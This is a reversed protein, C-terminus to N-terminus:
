FDWDDSVAVDIAWFFSSFCQGAWIPFDSEVSQHDATGRDAVGPYHFFDAFRHVFFRLGWGAFGCGLCFEVCFEWGYFFVEEECDGQVSFSDAEQFHSFM